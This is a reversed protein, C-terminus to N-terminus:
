SFDGYMTEVAQAVNERSKALSAAYVQLTFDATTHGLLDQVTKPSEGQDLLYSAYAGRLDHLRMNDLGVARAAAKFTQSVADPKIPLGLKDTFIFDSHTYEPGLAMKNVAQQRREELLKKELLQPVPVYRYSADTKLIKSFDLQGTLNNTTLQHSILLTHKKLDM